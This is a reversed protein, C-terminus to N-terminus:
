ERADIERWIFESYLWDDERLHEYELPNKSRDTKRDALTENRLSKPVVEGFGGVITTDYTKGPKPPTAASSSSIPTVAPTVSPTGPKKTTDIATSTKKGKLGGFGTQANATFSIASIALCMLFLKKM